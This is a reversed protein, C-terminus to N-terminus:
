GKPKRASLLNEAQLALAIEVHPCWANEIFKKCSCDPFERPDAAICTIEERTMHRRRFRLNRDGPNRVAKLEDVFFESRVTGDPPPHSERLELTMTLPGHGHDTRVVTLVRQPFLETPPLTLTTTM